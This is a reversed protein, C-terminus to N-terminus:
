KARPRAGDKIIPRCDPRAQVTQSGTPKEPVEHILDTKNKSVKM